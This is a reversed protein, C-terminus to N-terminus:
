NTIGLEIDKVKKVIWEREDFYDLENLEKLLFESNKNDPESVYKILKQYVNIFNISYNLRDKPIEKHNKIYKKHKDIELYAEDYKGLEYYNNLRILSSDLYLLYNNANINELNSLSLEYKSKAFNLKAYSLSTEDKRIEDPLLESYKKIFNEVWGYERLVLGIYVYDRFGNFLYKNEKLDSILDQNLKEKYLIFLEKQYASNGENHKQICYNIMLTFVKVKYEDKLEQSIGNFISHAKFYCNENETNEFAKYLYYNMSTIKMILTGSKSFNVMDEEINLKRLFDFVYNPEYTRNDFKQQAFEIGTELLTILNICLIIISNGYFEQYYQEVKNKDHLYELLFVSIQSLNHYKQLDFKENVANELIRSYNTKFFKDLKKEQLKELLIKDMEAKNESFGSYALFKEGLYYLESYRNLLTQDSFKKGDESYIEAKGDDASNGEKLKLVQELFPLYNRGKSFFPSSVFKRFQEIEKDTFSEILLILKRNVAVM